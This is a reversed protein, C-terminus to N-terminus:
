HIPPSVRVMFVECGKTLQVVQLSSVVLGAASPTVGGAPHQPLQSLSYESITFHLYRPTATEIKGQAIAEMNIGDGIPPPELEQVVM